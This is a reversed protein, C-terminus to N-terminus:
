APSAEIISFAFQAETPIVEKMKFGSANLLSEFEDRGDVQTAATTTQATM